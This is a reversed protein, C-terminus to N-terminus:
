GHRKFYSAIFLGFIMMLSGLWVLNIGPFEIVEMVLYDTRPANEALQIPFKLTSIDNYNKSFSFTMIEKEPDIKEFFVTIGPDLQVFPIPFVKNNKIIYIPKVIFTTAGDFVKINAAIAIDGKEIIGENLKVDNEFGLLEFQFGDKEIKDNKKLSFFNREPNNISGSLIHYITDPIQSRVSFKDIQDPFRYVLNERFVIGPQATRIVSDELSKFKLKYEILQDGDIANFSNKEFKSVVKELFCIHRKTYISDGIGIYYMEFDLSDEAKSASEADMQSQPIQSIITFIDKHLYHKTAPNSAAVKTLKNDYQIEPNLEFKDANPHLSDEKSFEISYRRVKNDMTDSLYKISYGELHAPEGKILLFNKKIDTELPDTEIDQFLNEAQFNRKNIGSFIIGILLLGFGFHSLIASTLKFQTKIMVTAAVISAFCVWLAAFLLIFLSWHQRDLYQFILITFVLSPILAIFINRFFSKSVKSLSTGCYRLFITFGSLLALFTAIWIQFRNHHEIINVPPSRHYEKMSSGIFNGYVDLLKNFVPISTTFSILGASFLFVLSGIFMWFERSEIIEEKSPTPINKFKKLYLVLPVFITVVCFIVLQWELGMQTFAHASSEGLIGSRTLFSSYVVLGFSALYFLITAKNAYTTHLSILNSHIGAILIIWPVLSMNEVPDWAWYGGFSLAEYAWAAGMLIGLGLVAGSFLSWRLVTKVWEKYEGLWLASFAYAFPVVTSAFGLFLTPPHITMWYNQLLPNLGNGKILSTYEANKFLPIDMIQRLLVFPSSGLKVGSIHIGLIMSVIIIQVGVIVTLVSYNSRTFKKWFFLGLVCNWFMWLLFSGEQGEWFASLIYKRALEDSVHSWVYNFEYYHQDMMYFILLIASFISLINILYGIKMAKSWDSVALQDKSQISKIGSIFSYIASFFALLILGHGVYHIWLHENVYQIDNM